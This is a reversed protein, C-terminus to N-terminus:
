TMLIDMNKKGTAKKDIKKTYQAIDYFIVEWAQRRYKSPWPVSHM